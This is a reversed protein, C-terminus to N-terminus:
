RFLSPPSVANVLDEVEAKRHVVQREDWDVVKRSSLEPFYLLLLKLLHFLLLATLLTSYLLDELSKKEDWAIRNCVCVKIHKFAYAASNCGFLRKNWLGFTQKLILQLFGVETLWSNPYNTSTLLVRQPQSHPFQTSYTVFEPLLNQAERFPWVVSEASVCTWNSM